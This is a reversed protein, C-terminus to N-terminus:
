AQSPPSRPNLSSPRPITSSHPGVLAPRALRAHPPAACGAIPWCGRGTCNRLVYRKVNISRTICRSLTTRRGRGSKMGTALVFIMAAYAIGAPALGALGSTKRGKDGYIGMLTLIVLNQALIFFLEAYAALAMGRGIFYAIAVTSGIVESAFMQFRLGEVSRKALIRQIQPVKVM